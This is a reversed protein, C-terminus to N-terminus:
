RSIFGFDTLITDSWELINHVIKPTTKQFLISPLIIGRKVLADKYEQSHQDITGHFPLRMQFKNNVIFESKVKPIYHSYARTHCFAYAKKGSPWHSGPIGYCLGILNTEHQTLNKYEIPQFSTTAKVINNNFNTIPSIFCSLAPSGVIEHPTSEQWIILMPHNNCEVKIIRRRGPYHQNMWTPDILTFEKKTKKWLNYLPNLDQGNLDWYVFRRTGSLGIITAFEGPLLTITGDDENKEFIDMGEIHLSSDNLKFKRSIRLRNPAYNCQRSYLTNMAARLIESAQVARNIPESYQHCMGQAFDPAKRTKFSTPDLKEKLTPEIIQNTDNFVSNSTSYLKTKAIAAIKNEKSIDTLPVVAVGVSKLLAQINSPDTSLIDTLPVQVPKTSTM